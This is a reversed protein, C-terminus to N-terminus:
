LRLEPIMPSKIYAFRNDYYQFFFSVELGNPNTDSFHSDSEGPVFRVAFSVKM